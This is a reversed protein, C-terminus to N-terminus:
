NILVKRNNVIYIGRPLQQLEKSTTIKLKVGKLDYVEISRNSDEIIQDIGSIANINFFNKWIDASRYLEISENPVLLSANLYVKYPFHDPDPNTFIPPNIAECIITELNDDWAEGDIEKINNPFTIQKQERPNFFYIKSVNEGIVINDISDLGSMKVDELERDINLTSIHCRRFPSFDSFWYDEFSLPEIGKEITVTKLTKCEYFAGVDITRINGPINISEIQTLFFAFQPIKTMKPGIEAKKLRNGLRSREFTSPYIGGDLDTIINRGLYISETDLYGIKISKECDQFIVKCLNRCNDFATELNDVCPPISISSISTGNFAGRKINKIKNGITVETISERTFAEEGIEIVSLTRGNYEIYDPIVISSSSQDKEGVISVTLDSISLIKYFLGGVEIDYELSYAKNYSAFTLIALLFLTVKKM